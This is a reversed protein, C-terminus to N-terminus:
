DKIWYNGVNLGTKIPVNLKLAGEMVEKTIAKVEEIKDVPTEIIVEDHIQILIHADLQGLVRDLKIMAIKILDAASGQIKTNIAQRQIDGYWRKDKLEQFRRRRGTIMEVYGNTFANQQVRQIFYKIKPYGAFFSDIYQKAEDEKREIMHSLTRPGVGYVIGFNVNKAIRREKIGTLAMTTAHIDGDENFTKVMSDDLSFHALMRLEIQSYDALVFKYGKRPVFARRVNWEDTRTPINQLNPDKSSLRGTRTGHQLFSTHIVGNKDAKEVLAILYTRYIKDLDRFKLLLPVFEKEGLNREKVIQELVEDDTSRKGSDTRKGSPYGLVDFLIKELQQPSHINVNKDDFCLKMKEELDFLVKEIETRKTKLWDIDLQVGRMEMKAIVPILNLEIKEYDLLTGEAKVKLSLDFFLDYTNMVDDGCYDSLEKILDEQNTFLDVSRNLDKYEKPSRGLNAKTLAKLGHPTNEDILWSMIMTDHFKEPWPLKHLALLQLDYKANHFIVEKDLFVNSLLKAVKSVDTQDSFPIFYQKKNTGLGIGEIKANKIDIDSAELDCAIIKEEALGVSMEVLQNDDKILLCNSM